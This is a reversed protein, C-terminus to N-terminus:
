FVAPNSSDAGFTVSWNNLVGVDQLKSDTIRLKWVGNGNHSNNLNALPQLPKFTSSFPASGTNITTSGLPSFSTKTFNDGVGGVGNFLNIITGYPSVLSVSLDSDNPHSIDLNVQIIGLTTNLTTSPLNSITLLFDNQQGDDSISGGSGSFTQSYSNALFFLAIGILLQKKM